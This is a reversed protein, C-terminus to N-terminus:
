PAVVFSAAEVELADVTVTVASEVVVESVAGALEVKPALTVKVAVTRAPAVGTVAPVTVKQLPLAEMPVPVNFADPTAVSLKLVSGSPTFEIM